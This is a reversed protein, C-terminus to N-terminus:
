SSPASPFSSFCASNRLNIPITSVQESWRHVRNSRELMLMDKLCFTICTCVLFTQQIISGNGQRQVWESIIIVSKWRCLLM